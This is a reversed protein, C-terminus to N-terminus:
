WGVFCVSAQLSAFSVHLQAYVATPSVGRFFNCRPIRASGDLRFGHSDIIEWRPLLESSSPSKLISIPISRPRSNKCFLPHSKSCSKSFYCQEIYLSLESSCQHLTKLVCRLFM